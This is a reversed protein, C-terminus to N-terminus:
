DSDPGFADELDFGFGGGGGKPPKVTPKDPKANPDPGVADELDLGFGGGGSKPPKVAPKDPKTTPDPKIADGLDFEFGGDNDPAKPQEKPKAPTPALDEFADELNFGLDQTLTGTVLLLLLVIRSFM